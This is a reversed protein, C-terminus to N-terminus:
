LAARLYRSWLDRSVRQPDSRVGHKQFYSCVNTLDRELLQLANRNFRPDVAQPFDILVPRDPLCLINYPSLDGHVIELTLLLRINEIIRGHFERAQAPTLEADRLKPAPESGVGIYEMLLVREALKLPTPVDVGARALTQLVEYEHFMWTGYEVKRGWASKKKFGREDRKNTIVFGERYLSQNRFTREERSRFVKAAVLDFGLEPKARCCYVTGEKGSKLEGLVELITGDSLFPELPDIEDDDDKTYQTAFDEEDLDEEFAVRRPLRPRWENRTPVPAISRADRPKAFSSSVPWLQSLALQVQDNPPV